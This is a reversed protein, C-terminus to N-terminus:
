YSRHTRMRRSTSAVVKFGGIQYSCACGQGHRCATNPSHFTEQEQGPSRPRETFLLPLLIENRDVVCVCNVWTEGMMHKGAQYTSKSSGVIVFWQESQGQGERM